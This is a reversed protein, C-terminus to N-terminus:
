PQWGGESHGWPTGSHIIEHKRVMVSHDSVCALWWGLDASPSSGGVPLCRCLVQCPPLGEGADECRFPPPVAALPVLEPLEAARPSPAPPFRLEPSRPSPSRRPREPFPPLPDGAPAQPSLAKPAPPQLGPAPRHRPFPPGGLM